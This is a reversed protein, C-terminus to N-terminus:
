YQPPLALHSRASSSAVRALAAPERADDLKFVSILGALGRAEDKMAGAAAMAEEVLAANKQTVDDILNISDSVESIGAAQEQGTASIDHIIAAVSEVSVVIGHITKGAEHVLATGTDVKTASDTILETIERAAAASRQALNRVESAVVAFGRGQEGARAAEVAANLALINTQFAIGDIVGIISSIKQSSRNIDDMTDVMRAVADGGASAASSALATKQNARQAHEASRKINTSIQEMAAATEEVSAAQQETRASLDQNGQAIEASAIAIGNISRRLNGILERLNLTMNRLSQMLQGVEDRSGAQLDVTLDGQAVREAVSVAETLPRIISRALLHVIFAALLVASGELLLLLRRSKRATTEVDVNISDIQRRQVTLFEQMLQQFGRAVALYDNQLVQLAQENDGAAKLQSIRERVALYRKRQDGIKDFLAREEDTELLRGIHEQLDDSKTSGKTSLFDALSPDSSKAIATTRMIGSDIARYWDSSLREKTLPNKMMQSSADSLMQLNWLAIGTTMCSLVLVVGLGLGLRQAIKLHTFM